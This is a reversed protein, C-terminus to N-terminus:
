TVAEGILDDSKGDPPVDAVAQTVGIHRLPEGFAPDHDVSAGDVAPHLSEQREEHLSGAMVGPWYTPLPTNVFRVAAEIASPGVAIPRDILIALDHIDVEALPAVGSCRLGEEFARDGPRAYRWSADDGVPRPAIRGGNPRHERGDLV